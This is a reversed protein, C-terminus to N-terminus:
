AGKLTEIRLLENMIFKIIQVTFLWSMIEASYDAASSIQRKSLCLGCVVPFLTTSQIYKYRPGVFITAGSLSNTKIYIM